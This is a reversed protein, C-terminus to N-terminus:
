MVEVGINFLGQNRDLNKCTDETLKGERVTVGCYGSNDLDSGGRSGMLAVEGLDTGVPKTEFSSSQGGGFHKVEITDGPSVLHVLREPQVERETRQGSM